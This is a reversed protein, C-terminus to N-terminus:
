KTLLVIFCEFMISTFDWFFIKFFFFYKESRQGLQFHRKGCIKRCFMVLYLKFVIVNSKKIYHLSVYFQKCVAGNVGYWVTRAVNYIIIISYTLKM